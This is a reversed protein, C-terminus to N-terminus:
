KRAGYLNVIMLGAVIALGYFPMMGLWVYVAVTISLVAMTLPIDVHGQKYYTVALTMMFLVIPPFMLTLDIM